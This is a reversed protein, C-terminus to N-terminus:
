PGKVEVAVGLQYNSADGNTANPTANNAACVQTLSALFGFPSQSGLSTCGSGANITGVGGDEIAYVMVAKNSTQGFASLTVTLSTGNGKNTAFNSTWAASSDVGTCQAVNWLIQTQTVGGFNITVAGATPSAGQAHCLTARHPESAGNSVTAGADCTWTLGNGTVSSVANPSNGGKNNVVSLILLANSSPSVSATSMTSASTTGNMTLSSCSPGAVTTTTTSSTTTTTTSTTTTSTTTTTTTTTTSTTTSTTTARRIVTTAITDASATAALVLLLVFARM